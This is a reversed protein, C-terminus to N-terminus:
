AKRPYKGIPALELHLHLSGAHLCCGRTTKVELHRLAKPCNGLIGYVPLETESFVQYRFGPKRSCGKEADRHILGARLMDQIHDLGTGVIIGLSAVTRGERGKSRPEAGALLWGRAYQLCSIAGPPTYV